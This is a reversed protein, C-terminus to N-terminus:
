RHTSSGEAPPLPLTDAAEAILYAVIFGAVIAITWLGAISADNARHYATAVSSLLEPKWAKAAATAFGSVAAVGAFWTLPNRAAKVFTAAVALLLAALTAMILPGKSPEPIAYFNIYWESYAKFYDWVAIAALATCFAVVLAAGTREDLRAFQM